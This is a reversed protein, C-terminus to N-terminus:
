TAVDSVRHPLREARDFRSVRWSRCFTWSSAGLPARPLYEADLLVPRIMSSCSVRIDSSFLPPDSRSMKSPRPLFFESRDGAAGGAGGPDPMADRPSVGRRGSRPWSSVRRRQAGPARISGTPTPGESAARRGDGRRRRATRPKAARTSATSRRRSGSRDARGHGRRALRRRRRRAASRQGFRGAARALWGGGKGADVGFM